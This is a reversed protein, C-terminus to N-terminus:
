WGVGFKFRQIKDVVAPRRTEGSALLPRLQVLLQWRESVTLRLVVIWFQHGEPMTVTVGLLNTEEQIEHSSSDLKPLTQRSHSQGRKSVGPKLCM